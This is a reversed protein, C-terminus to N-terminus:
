YFFRTSQSMIGLILLFYLIYGLVGLVTGWIAGVRFSNARRPRSNRLCGYPIFGFPGMMFGLLWWGFGGSDTSSTNHQHDEHQSGCYPCSLMGDLLERGCVSCNKM